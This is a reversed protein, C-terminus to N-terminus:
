YLDPLSISDMSDRVTISNMVIFIFPEFKPPKLELFEPSPWSM